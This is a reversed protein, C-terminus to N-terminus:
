ASVRNGRGRVAQYIALLLVAGALAVVFSWLNFGTVGTGGLMTAVAGGLFSGLIGVVINGIAGQRANTGAIMSAVWGVLAGFVIFVIFNMCKEKQTVIVV